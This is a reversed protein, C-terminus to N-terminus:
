SRVLWAIKERERQVSQSLSGPKWLHQHRGEREGERDEEEVEEHGREENRNRREGKESRLWM